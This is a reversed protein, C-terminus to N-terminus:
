GEQQAHEQNRRTTNPITTTYDLQQMVQRHHETMATIQDSSLSRAWQGSEGKRFFRGSKSKDSKEIFGEAQEATRLKQFETEAVAREIRQDDVQWGLFTVANRLTTRPSTKLDEYRVLHVPFLPQRLWSTVHGSWTQLYQTVMPKRPGGIRHKPDNMATIAADITIGMHDAFSDVVDMPNRVVYIAGLTVDPCIVPTGRVKVFANHTKIVTPPTVSAALESQVKNRLLLIEDETLFRHTPGETIGAAREFCTRRSESKSIGFANKLHFPQNEPRQYSALLLRMWTNGSKPYSALWVLRKM